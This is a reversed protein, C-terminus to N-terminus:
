VFAGSKSVTLLGVQTHERLGQLFECKKGEVKKKKETALTEEKRLDIAESDLRKISCISCGIIIM